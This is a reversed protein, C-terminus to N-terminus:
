HVVFCFAPHPRVDLFSTEEDCESLCQFGRVKRDDLPQGDSSCINNNTNNTTTNSNPDLLHDHPTALLPTIDDPSLDNASLADRTLAERTLADPTLTRTLMESSPMMLQPTQLSSLTSGLADNSSFINSMSNSNSSMTNTTTTTNCTDSQQQQQQQLCSAFQSNSDINNLFDTFASTANSSTIRQSGIADTNMSSDTGSALINPNFPLGNNCMNSMADMNITSFDTNCSFNNDVISENRNESSVINVNGNNNSIDNTSNNDSNNTRKNITNNINNKSIMKNDNNTISPTTSATTTVHQTKTNDATAISPVLSATLGTCM